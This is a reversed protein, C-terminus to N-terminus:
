EDDRREGKKEPEAPWEFGKLNNDVHFKKFCNQCELVKTRDPHAIPDYGEYRLTAQRCKPNPCVLDEIDDGEEALRFPKPM